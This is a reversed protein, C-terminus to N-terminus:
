EAMLAFSSGSVNSINTSSLSESDEALWKYEATVGGFVTLKRQIDLLFKQGISEVTVMLPLSGGSELQRSLFSKDASLHFILDAFAAQPQIHKRADAVRIKISKLVEAKPM